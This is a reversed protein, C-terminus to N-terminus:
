FCLEQMRRLKKGKKVGKDIYMSKDAEDITDGIGAAVSLGEDEFAVDLELKLQFASRPKALFLVFEDGRSWRVLYDQPTLYSSIVKAIDSLYTDGAIHGLRDNIEKLNNADFFIKQFASDNPKIFDEYYARTYSNTKKCMNANIYSNELLERPLEKVDGKLKNCIDYSETAVKKQPLSSM